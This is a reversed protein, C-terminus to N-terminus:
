TRWFTRTLPIVLTLIELRGALMEITLLWKAAEPLPAFTCCPGITSGLGPGVGGLATASGGLAADLGLGCFSLALAFLLFTSTYVFVYLSVGARVADVVPARNYTVVFSGHPYIQRHTQARLGSLMLCLRFMKIGGATSGTCGGVLMLSLLLVQAFGGWQSFDQSTFGTTTIISVVNFTAERLAEIIPAENWAVRWLFLSFVASGIIALFLRVQADQTLARPGRRLAEIYLSFPLASLLMQVSATWEIAPSKFYGIGADHSSFGGTAVAAMSHGIADFTSMGELRYAIAGGVTIALYVLAINLVLDIMRPVFKGAQASLDIVFLQQGGIRLFPLVLVALTVFGFGGLWILLWRWLLLGTPATDLGVIVTSGTATVGSMTEFVADVYPLHLSSFVFPLAAFAVVTMWTAPVTLMVERIGMSSRHRHFALALSLGVFISIAACTIFVRYDDNSEAVDFLAPILMAGGFGCLIVGVFFFVAPLNIVPSAALRRYSQAYAM